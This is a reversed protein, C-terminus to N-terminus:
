SDKQFAKKWGGQKMIKDWSNPTLTSRQWKSTINLVQKVFKIKPQTAASMTFENAFVQKIMPPLLNKGARALLRTALNALM